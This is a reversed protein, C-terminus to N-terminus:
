LKRLAIKRTGRVRMGFALAASHETRAPEGTTFVLIAPPDGAAATRAFALARVLQAVPDLFQTRPLAARFVPLLAPYHTCALLIAPLTALPRVIRHVEAVVHPAELEGAEVMASLPQAIRGVVEIGFRALARAHLRSRVTRAGGLLGIRRLNAARVQAIAPAIVDHVLLGPPPRVRHLVTSAANCAVIVRRVGRACFFAFVADLRAALRAASVKGYPLFGSDSFYTLPLQPLRRRLARVVGFGGVGWDMVLLEPLEPLEPLPPSAFRQDKASV